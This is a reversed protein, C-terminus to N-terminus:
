LIILNRFNIKYIVGIECNRVPIEFFLEVCLKFLKKVSKKNESDKNDACYNKTFTVFNEFFRCFNSGFIMREIDFNFNDQIIEEIFHDISFNEKQFKLNEFLEYYTVELNEENMVFTNDFYSEKKKLYNLNDLNFIDLSKEVSNKDNKNFSKPVVSKELEKKSVLKLPSKKKREYILYLTNDVIVNEGKVIGELFPSKVERSGLLHVAEDYFEVWKPNEQSLTLNDSDNQDTVIENFGSFVLGSDYDNREFKIGGV